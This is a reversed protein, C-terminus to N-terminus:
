LHHRLENFKEKVRKMEAIATRVEDMIATPTNQSMEGLAGAVGRRAEELEKSTADWQRRLEEYDATM